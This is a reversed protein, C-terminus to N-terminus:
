HSRFNLENFFVGGHVNVPQISSCGGLLILAGGLVVLRCASKYYKDRM